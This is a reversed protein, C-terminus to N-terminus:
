LGARRDASSFGRHRRILRLAARIIYILLFVSLILIFLTAIGSKTKENDMKRVGEILNRSAASFPNNGFLNALM